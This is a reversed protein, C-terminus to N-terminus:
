QAIRHVLEEKEFLEVIEKIQMELYDPTEDFREQILLAIDNITLPADMVHLVHAATYNLVFVSDDETNIVLVDETFDSNIKEIQIHENRIFKIM